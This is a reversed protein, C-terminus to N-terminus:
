PRTNLESELDLHLFTTLATTAAHRPSASGAAVADLGPLVAQIGDLLRDLLGRLVVADTEATDTRTSTRLRVVGSDPHQSLALDPLDTALRHLFEATATRRAAPIRRPLTATLTLTGPFAPVDWLIDVTDDDFGGWTTSVLLTGPVRAHAIDADRLFGLVANHTASVPDLTAHMTASPLTAPDTNNIRLAPLRAGAGGDTRRFSASCARAPHGATATAPAPATPASNM